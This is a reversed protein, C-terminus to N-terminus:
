FTALEYFYNLLCFITKVLWRPDTYSESGSTSLPPLKTSPKSWLFGAVWDLGARPQNNVEPRHHSSRLSMIVHSHWFGVKFSQLVKKMNSSQFHGRYSTQLVTLSSCNNPLFVICCLYSKSRPCFGCDCWLVSCLHALIYWHYMTNNLHGAWLEPRSCGWSHFLPLHSANEYHHNDWSYNQLLKGLLLLFLPSNYLLWWKTPLINYM